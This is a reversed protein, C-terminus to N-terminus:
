AGTQKMEAAILQELEQREAASMELAVREASGPKARLGADAATDWELDDAAVRVLAWEADEELNLPEELLVPAAYPAAVSTSSAPQLAARNETWVFLAVACLVLAAAVPMLVLPRRARGPAHETAIGDHVRRSFHEWFLPSPEPVDASGAGEVQELMTRLTDLRSRCHECHELHSRFRPLADREVCDVLEVDALHRNM